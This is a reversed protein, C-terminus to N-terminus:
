FAFFLSSLLRYARGGALQPFDCVPHTLRDEGTRPCVAKPQDDGDDEGRSGEGAPGWSWDSGTQGRCRLLAERSFRYLRANISRYPQGRKTSSDTSLHHQPSTQSVSHKQGARQRSDREHGDGGGGVVSAGDDDSVKYVRSGKINLVQEPM